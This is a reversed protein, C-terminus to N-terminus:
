RDYETSYTGTGDPNFQFTINGKWRTSWVNDSYKRYKNSADTKPKKGVSVLVYSPNMHEVARANFGSDRGHHSADLITVDKIKASYNDMIYEWTEDEADGGLVIKRNGYEVLLVYSMINKNDKEQALTILEPSPSLISIGDEAWFELSDGDRPHIVTTQGVKKETADRLSKYINWDEIQSDSLKSQDVDFNNKSVWFNTPCFDEFLQNLGTFHDAHPHTSVFRFPSNIQNANMYDIPDTLSINYKAEKLLDGATKIGSEFLFRSGADVSGLAMEVLENKTDEDFEASRNIDVMMTRNSTGFEIIICDGHGVNLYHLKLM